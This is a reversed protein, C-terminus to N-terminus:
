LHWLGHNTRADYIDFVNVAAPSSSFFPRAGCDVLHNKFLQPDPTGEEDDSSRAACRPM